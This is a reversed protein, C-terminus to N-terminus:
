VARTMACTLAPVLSSAPARTCRSLTFAPLLLLWNAEQELM